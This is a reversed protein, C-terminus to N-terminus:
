EKSFFADRDYFAAKYFMMGRKENKNDYLESWMNHDTPRIEWGEPLEVDLFLDDGSSNDIVKIGMKEYVNIATDTRDFSNLKRPLQSSECLQEQGRKEQDVIAAPHGGRIWDYHIEEKATNKIKKM